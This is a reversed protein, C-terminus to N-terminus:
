RNENAYGYAAEEDVVVPMLGQEANQKELLDEGGAQALLSLM